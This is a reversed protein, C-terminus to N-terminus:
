QAAPAHKALLEAGKAFGGASTLEVLIDRIYDSNRVRADAFAVLEEPTPGRGPSVVYMDRGGAPNGDWYGVAYGTECTNHNAFELLVMTTEEAYLHLREVMEPSIRVNKKQELVKATIM